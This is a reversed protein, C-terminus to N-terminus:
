WSPPSLLQKTKWGQQTMQLYMLNPSPWKTLKMGTDLRDPPFAIIHMFAVHIHNIKLVLLAAKCLRIMSNLGDMLNLM